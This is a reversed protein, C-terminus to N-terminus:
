RALFCLRGTAPLGKPAGHFRDQVVDACIRPPINVDKQLDMHGLEHAQHFM